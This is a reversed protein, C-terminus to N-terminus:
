FFFGLRLSLFSSSTGSKSMTEYRLSADLGGLLVGISPAYTFASTTTHEINGNTQNAHFDMIQTTGIEAMGYFNDTIMYRGGAKFPITLLIKSNPNLNNLDKPAFGIAGTTFTVGFQQTVKYLFRFTLGAGFSYGNKLDGMPLAGEVGLNIKFRKGQIESTQKTQSDGVQAQTSLGFLFFAATLIIFQKKM